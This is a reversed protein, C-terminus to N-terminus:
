ELVPAASASVFLSVTIPETTLTLFEAKNLCCSSRGPWPAMALSSHKQTGGMEQQREARVVQCVEGKWTSGEMLCKLSSMEFRFIQFNPYEWVGSNKFASRIVCTSFEVSSRM